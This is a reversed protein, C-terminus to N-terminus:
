SRGEKVFVERVDEFRKKAEKKLKYVEVGNALGYYYPEVIWDFYPKDDVYGVYGLKKLRMPRRWGDPV